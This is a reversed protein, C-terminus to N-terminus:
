PRRARYWRNGSRVWSRPSIARTPSRLWAEAEARLESRNHDKNAIAVGLARMAADYVTTTSALDRISVGPNSAAIALVRVIEHETSTM